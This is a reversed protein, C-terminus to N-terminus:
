FNFLLKSLTHQRNHVEKQQTKGLVTHKCTQYIGQTKGFFHKQEAGAKTIISYSLMYRQSLTVAHNLRVRGSVFAGYFVTQEESGDPLAEM